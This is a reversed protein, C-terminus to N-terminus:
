TADLLWSSLALSQLVVNGGDEFVKSLLHSCICVICHQLPYVLGVM